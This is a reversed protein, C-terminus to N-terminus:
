EHLIRTEENEVNGNAEYIQLFIDKFIQDYKKNRSNHNMFYCLM